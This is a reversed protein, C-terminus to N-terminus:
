SDFGTDEWKGIKGNEDVEAKSTIGSKGNYTIVIKGADTEGEGPVTITVGESKATTAAKLVAERVSGEAKISNDAYTKEYYKSVESYSERIVAEKAAGMTTAVSSKTAQKFINNEGSLMAISVGALILLVIITIVLAILTIGKNGKM